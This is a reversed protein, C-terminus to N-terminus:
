WHLGKHSLTQKVDQSTESTKSTALLKTNNDITIWHVLEERRKSNRM